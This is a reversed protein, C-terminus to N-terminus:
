DNSLDDEDDDKHDFGFADDDDEEEAGDGDGDSEDVYVKPQSAAKRKPLSRKPLSRRPVDGGTVVQATQKKTLGKPLGGKRKRGAGGETEMWLQVNSIGLNQLV